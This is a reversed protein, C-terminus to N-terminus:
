SSLVIKAIEMEFRSQIITHDLRVFIVKFVNYVYFLMYMRLHFSM